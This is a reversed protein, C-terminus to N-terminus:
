LPMSPDGLGFSLFKAACLFGPIDVTRHRGSKTCRSWRVKERYVLNKRSRRIVHHFVVGQFTRSNVLYLCMFLSLEWHLHWKKKEWFASIGEDPYIGVGPSILRWGPKPNSPSFTITVVVIRLQPLLSIELFPIYTSYEFSAWM